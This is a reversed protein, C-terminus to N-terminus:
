KLIRAQSFGHVSSGPLSSNMPNCLTSCLKTVLCCCCSYPLKIFINERWCKFISDTYFSTHKHTNTHMDQPDFEMHHLGMEGDLYLGASVRGGM